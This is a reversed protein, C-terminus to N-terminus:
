HKIPEITLIIGDISVVRIMTGKSINEESKAAWTTDGITVRCSGALIDEEVRSTQGVLQKEKQNLQRKSDSKKDKTHQYKWWLWTSFLAFVAFSIWQLQWSMPIFSYLAGVVIASLGIWLFYGATGLLEGALLILGLTLWHWHNMQEFLEM